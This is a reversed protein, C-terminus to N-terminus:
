MTQRRYAAQFEWALALAVQWTLTKQPKEVLQSVVMESEWGAFM